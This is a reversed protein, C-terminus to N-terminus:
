RAAIRPSVFTPAYWIWPKSGDAAPKPPLIVFGANQKPGVRFDERQLGFQRSRTVQSIEAAKPPTASEAAGAPALCPDMRGAIARNEDTQGGSPPEWARSVRAGRRAHDQCSTDPFFPVTGM